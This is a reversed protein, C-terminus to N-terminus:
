IFAWSTAQYKYVGDAYVMVVGFICAAFLTLVKKM